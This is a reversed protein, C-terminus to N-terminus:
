LIFAEMECPRTKYCGNGYKLQKKESATIEQYVLVQMVEDGVKSIQHPFHFQQPSLKLTNFSFALGFNQNAMNLGNGNCKIVEAERLEDTSIKLDAHSPPM